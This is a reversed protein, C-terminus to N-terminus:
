GIVRGRLQGLVVSGFARSDVSVPRNDGLVYYENRGLTMPYETSTAEVTTEGNITYDGSEAVGNVYVVGDKIDITDGPVGAIRKIYEDGGPMKVVVVDGREYNKTTRLYLVRQGSKFTPWMSDGSVESIGFIFTFLVFVIIIAIMALGCWKMVELKRDAYKERYKKEATNPNSM